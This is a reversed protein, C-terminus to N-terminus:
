TTGLVGLNYGLKKLKTAAAQAAAIEKSASLGQVSALVASMDGKDAAAKLAALQKDIARLATVFTANAQVAEAPPTLSELDSAAKKLGAQAKTVASKLGALSTTNSSIATIAQELSKGDAQVRQEYQAKTLAKSGGGGGGGCGAVLAAVALIALGATGRHRRM